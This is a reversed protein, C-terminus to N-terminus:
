ELTGAAHESVGPSGRGALQDFRGSELAGADAPGHDVIPVGIEDDGLGLTGGVVHEPQDFDDAALHVLSKPHRQFQLQFDPSYHDLEGKEVPQWSARKLPDSARAAPAGWGSPSDSQSLWGM